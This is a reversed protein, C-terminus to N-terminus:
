PRQKFRQQINLKKNQRYKKREKEVKGDFSDEESGENVYNIINPKISTM